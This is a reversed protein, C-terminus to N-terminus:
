SAAKREVLRLKAESQKALLARAEDRTSAAKCAVVEENAVTIVLFPLGERPPTYIISSSTDTM